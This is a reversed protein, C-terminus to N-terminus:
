SLELAIFNQYRLLNGPEVTRQVAKKLFMCSREKGM